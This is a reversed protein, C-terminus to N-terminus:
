TKWILSKQSGDPSVETWADPDATQDWGGATVRVSKNLQKAVAIACELDDAWPLAQSDFWLSTYGPVVREFIVVLFSSQEWTVTFPFAPKPMGKKKKIPAVHEFQLKLWETADDLSLSDVYIEIDPAKTEDNM